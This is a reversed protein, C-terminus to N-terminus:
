DLGSTLYRQFGNTPFSHRGEWESSNGVGWLNTGLSGLGNMPFAVGSPNKVQDIGGWGGSGGKCGKRGVLVGKGIGLDKDQRIDLGMRRGEM